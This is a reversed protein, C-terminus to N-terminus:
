VRLVRRGHLLVPWGVRWFGPDRRSGWNGWATRPTVCGWTSSPLSHEPLTLVFAAKRL